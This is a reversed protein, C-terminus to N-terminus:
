LRLRYFVTIARGTVSGNNWYYQYPDVIGWWSAARIRYISADNSKQRSPTDHGVVVRQRQQGLSVGGLKQFERGAEELGTPNPAIPWFEDAYTRSCAPIPAFVQQCPDITEDARAGAIASRIRWSRDRRRRHRFWLSHQFPWTFAVALGYSVLGSPM